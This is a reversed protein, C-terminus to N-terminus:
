HDITFVVKDVAFETLLQLGQVRILPNKYRARFHM